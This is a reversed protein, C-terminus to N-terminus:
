ISNNGLIHWLFTKSGKINNKTHQGQEEQYSVFVLKFQENQFYCKLKTKLKSIFNQTLIKKNIPGPKM